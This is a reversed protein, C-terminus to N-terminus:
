AVAVGTTYSFVSGIGNPSVVQVAFEYTPGIVFTGQLTATTVGKDLIEGALIFASSRSSPDANPIVRYFIRVGGYNILPPTWTITFSGLSVDPAATLSVGTAPSPATDSLDPLFEDTIGSPLPAPTYTYIDSSWGVAKINSTGGVEETATVRMDLNVVGATADNVVIHSGVDVGDVEATDDVTFSASVDSYKLVKTIYDAVRDSQQLDRIAPVEIFQAESRGVPYCSRESTEIHYSSVGGSGDRIRRTKCKLNRFSERLPTHSWEPPDINEWVGDTYGLTSVSAPFSTDVSISLDGSASAPEIKIGHVRMLENLHERLTIDEVACYDTKAWAQTLATNWATNNISLGPGHTQSELISRLQAVPNRIGLFYMEKVVQSSVTEAQIHLEDIFGYLADTATTASSSGIIFDATSSMTAPTGDGSLSTSQSTNNVFCELTGSSGRKVNFVVLSWEDFPVTLSSATFTTDSSSRRIFINPARSSNLYFYWGSTADIKRAIANTGGPFGASPIYVWVQLSFDSTGLDLGTQFADRVYIPKTDVFVPSHCSVGKASKGTGFTVPATVPLASSVCQFSVYDLMGQFYQASLNVSGGVCFRYQSNSSNQLSGIATIDAEGELVDDTYIYIKNNTRDVEMRGKHWGGDCRTLAYCILHDVGDNLYGYVRGEVVGFTYGTGGASGLGRAVIINNSSFTGANLYFYAEIAFSTSADMNFAATAESAYFYSGTTGLYAQQGHRGDSTYNASTVSAATLNNNGMNDSLTSTEVPTRKFDWHSRNVTTVLNNPPTSGSLDRLDGRFLWLGRSTSTPAIETNEIDAVLPTFGSSGSLYQPERFRVSMIGLRSNNTSPAVRSTDVATVGDDFYWIQEGNPVDALFYFNVNDTSKYIRYGSAKAVAAWTLRHTQSTGARNVSATAATEGAKTYATIKYYKTGTNSGTNYKRAVAVQAIAANGSAFTYTSTQLAPGSVQTEDGVKFSNTGGSSTVRATQGTTGTLTIGSGDHIVADTVIDGANAVLSTTASVSTGPSVQGIETGVHARGQAGLYILATVWIQSACGGAFSAVVNFTGSKVVPPLMNFGTVRAIGSTTVASMLKSVKGIRQNSSNFVSVETVATYGSTADEAGVYFVVVPNLAVDADTITMQGTVFSGSAATSTFLVRSFYAQMGDSAVLATPTTVASDYEVDYEGEGVLSLGTPVSRYVSNPWPRVRAPDSSANRSIDVAAAYTHRKTSFNQEYRRLPTHERSSGVVVPVPVGLDFEETTATPFLSKTVLINPYSMEARQSIPNIITLTIIGDDFDATDIQGVYRQAAAASSELNKRYITVWKERPTYTATDRFMTSYTRDANNIQISVSDSEIFGFYGDPAQKKIRPYEVLAKTYINGSGDAIDQHSSLYVTGHPSGLDLKVLIAYQPESTPFLAM